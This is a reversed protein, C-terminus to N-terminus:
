RAPAMMLGPPAVLMEVPPAKVWPARPVSLVCSRVSLPPAPTPVALLAILALRDVPPVSLALVALPPTYRSRADPARMPWTLAPPLLPTLSTTIWALPVSDAKGSAEPLAFILPLLMVSLLSSPATPASFAGITMLALPLGPMLPAM